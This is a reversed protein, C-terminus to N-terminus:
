EAKGFSFQSIIQVEILIANGRAGFYSAASLKISQVNETARPASADSAPPHKQKPNGDNLRGKLIERQGEFKVKLHIKWLKGFTKM